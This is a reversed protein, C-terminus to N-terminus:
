QQGGAQEEPTKEPEQVLRFELAFKGLARKNVRVAEIFHLKPAEMWPSEEINKMLTSVRSSSQTFGKLTVNKDTQRVETLHIGAPVQEVLGSLLHVMESRDEQLSEITNKREVLSQIEKKFAEVEAINKDLVGIKEKLYDNRLQQTSILQDLLLYGLGIILAGVVVSLGLMIDFQKRRAQRAEERYPLLNIRIM